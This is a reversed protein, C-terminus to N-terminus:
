CGGVPVGALLGARLTAANTLTLACLIALLGPHQAVAASALAACQRARQDAGCGRDPDAGLRHEADVFVGDPVLLHFHVNLNVLGGFRQVFTIAGTQPARLGRARAVRRQWTGIARV